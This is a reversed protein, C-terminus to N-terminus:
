ASKFTWSIYKTITVKQCEAQFITEQNSSRFIEWIIENIFDIKDFNALQTLTFETLYFVFVRLDKTKSGKLCIFKTM